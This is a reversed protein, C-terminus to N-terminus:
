GRQFIHKRHYELYEQNPFFRTPMRIEARNYSILLKKTGEDAEYKLIKPSLVIKFDEDFTILGKDFAKDHISNLCLGNQPNLRNKEDDKWPIIHSAVLLEPIPIGTVCCKNEYSALVTKRFFNQNVRQKTITEKTLGLKSEDYYIEIREDEIEDKKVKVLNEYALESETILKEWNGKFEEFIAKDQKGVNKAGEINRKKLDPDLSAFNVLKWAVASPTRGIADALEKIQPLHYNIKSFPIKCYLNFAVILEERSWNRRQESM